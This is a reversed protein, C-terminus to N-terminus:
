AREHGRRATSTATARVHPTTVLAAPTSGTPRTSGWAACPMPRAARPSRRADASPTQPGIQLERYLWARALAWDRKVTIAAVGLADATEEVTLGGFFRLEVLRSQRPDIAALRQLALDLALVDLAPAPQPAPVDDVLPVTCGGGRKSAARTRAHDVLIRRMAQAAIAFFHARNRWRVRTQDILELYAEHVLATPPLSHGARERRLYGRALRRLEAYVADVAAIRAAEEGNGWAVLLGTVNAAQAM